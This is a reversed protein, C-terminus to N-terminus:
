RVKLHFQYLLGDLDTATITEEVISHNRARMWSNLANMSVQTKKQTNKAEKEEIIQRSVEESITAFRSTWCSM